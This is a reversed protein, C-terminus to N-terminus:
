GLLKRLDEFGTVRAKGVSSLLDIGAPITLKAAEGNMSVTVILMVDPRKALAEFVRRQFGPWPTADVEVTGNEPAEMIQKAVNRCFRTFADEEQESGTKNEPEPDLAPVIITERYLEEGCSQCYTVLDYSGDVGIQPAVENEKVPDGPHHGEGTVTSDPEATGNQIDSVGTGAPYYSISGDGCLNGTDPEIETSEGAWGGPMGIGPGVPYNGWVSGGAVSVNADGGISIDGATGSSGGGAGIGAGNQGGVATVDSNVITIGTGSAQSGGGIGAGQAGGSATVTGGTITIDSGAGQAGGGIGASASGGAATVAGGTITIDSGAGDYGGGIGAGNYGGNATVTGGTITIDSGAGGYGGGIGAGWTGGNATLSGDGNEDQITLTGENEKQLGAYHRDGTLTNDGDLEITVNGQGTTVVAVEGSGSSDVTVGSFTVQAESGAAANIVVNNTDSSGTIVTPTTEAHDTVGNVQTVTQGNANAMVFISGEGVDYTDAFASLPSLCLLAAVVWATFRKINM